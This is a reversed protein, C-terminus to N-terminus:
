EMSIKRIVGNASDAIFLDGKSDVVIGIPTTFLADTGVGDVYGRLGVRGAPGGGALTTVMGEPSIMRVRDGHNMLEIDDAETVYLNGARDIAIAQLDGFVAASGYGDSGGTRGPRNGALITRSGSPTVKNVYTSGTTHTSTTGTYRSLEYKNGRTDTVSTMPRSFLSAIEKSPESITSVEGFKNIMRVGGRGRVYLNDYRDIVLFGPHDLKATQGSGDVNGHSNFRGAFLQVTAKWEYTFHTAIATQDKVKVSIPGSGAKVPIVIQIQDDSIGRVIASKGNVKVEVDAANNGFKHGSIIVEAGGPAKVPNVGTISHDALLKSSVPAPTNSSTRVTSNPKLTVNKARTNAKPLSPNTQVPLKSQAIAIAGIFSCVLLALGKNILQYHKM